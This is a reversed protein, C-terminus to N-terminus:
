EHVREEQQILAFQRCSLFFRWGQASHKDGGEKNQLVGAAWKGERGLRQLLVSLVRREGSLLGVAVKVGGNFRGHWGGSRSLVERKGYM